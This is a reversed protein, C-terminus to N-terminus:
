QKPVVLVDDEEGIVRFAEGFRSVSKRQDTEIAHDRCTTGPQSLFPDDRLSRQLFHFQEVSFVDLRTITSHDVNTTCGLPVFFVDLAGFVAEEAVQQRRDVIQRAVRWDREVALAPCARRDCRTQQLRVPEGIDCVERAPNLRPFRSPKGYVGSGVIRLVERIENSTANSGASAPAWAPPRPPPRPAAAGGGPGGTSKTGSRTHFATSAAGCSPHTTSTRPSRMSATSAFALTWTGGSAVVM